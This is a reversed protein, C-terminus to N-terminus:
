RFTRLENLDRALADLARQDRALLAARVNDDIPAAAVLAAWDDDNVRGLVTAIARSLAAVPDRDYDNMLREVDSKSLRRATGM